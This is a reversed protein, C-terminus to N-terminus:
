TGQRKRTTEQLISSASRAIRNGWLRYGLNSPHLYDSLMSKNVMKKDNTLFLDTDNVFVVWDFNSAFCKLHENVSSLQYWGPDNQLPKKGRPLLANLIITAKPHKRHITQVVELIGASVLNYNCGGAGYDNTGIL